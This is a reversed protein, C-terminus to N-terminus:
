MGRFYEEVTVMGNPQVAELEEVYEWGPEIEGPDDVDYKWDVDDKQYAEDPGRDMFLKFM